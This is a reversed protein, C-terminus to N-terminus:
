IHDKYLLSPSLAGTLDNPSFVMNMMLDPTRWLVSFTITIAGAVLLAFDLVAWVGMLKKSVM